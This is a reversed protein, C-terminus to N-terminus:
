KNEQAQRKGLTRPTAQSEGSTARAANSVRKGVLVFRGPAWRSAWLSRDRDASQGQPKIPTQVPALTQAVTKPAWKSLRLSAGRENITKNTTTTTTAITTAATTQTPYKGNHSYKDGLINEQYTEDPIPKSIEIVTPGIYPEVPLYQFVKLHAILAERVEGATCRQPVTLKLSRCFDVNYHKTTTLLSVQGLKKILSAPTSCGRRDVGHAIALETLQGIELESVCYITAKLAFTGSHPTKVVIKSEEM